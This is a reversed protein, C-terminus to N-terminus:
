PHLLHRGHRYLEAPETDDTRLCVVAGAVVAHANVECVAGLASRPPVPAGHIPCWSIGQFRQHPASTAFPGALHRDSWALVNIAFAGARRVVSLTRAPAPLDGSRAPAAVLVYRHQGHM